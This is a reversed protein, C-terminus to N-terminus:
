IERLPPEAREEEVAPFPSALETVISAVSVRETLLVVASLSTSAPATPLAPLTVRVAGDIESVSPETRELAVAPSPFAPVTLTVAESDTEM